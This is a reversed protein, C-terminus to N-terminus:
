FFQINSPYMVKKVARQIAKVAPVGENLLNVAIMAAKQQESKRGGQFQVTFRALIAVAQQPKHIFPEQVRIKPSLKPPLRM